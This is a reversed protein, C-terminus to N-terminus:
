RLKLVVRLDSVLDSVSTDSHVVERERGAADLVYIADNHQVAMGTGASYAGIGYASWVQQLQARPGILYNWNTSLDHAASFARVADPTDGEPDVSVAVFRVHSADSGLSRQAARFNAATLPCVDPCHTYLFAMAVTSGRLSSLTVATGTIGDQLTFDPAVSGDLETGSLHAPAPTCAALLLALAVLLSRAVNGLIHAMM